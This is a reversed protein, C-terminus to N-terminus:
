FDSYRYLDLNYLYEDMYEDVAQMCADEETDSPVNSDRDKDPLVGPSCVLGYWYGHEDQWTIVSLLSRSFIRSCNSLKFVGM